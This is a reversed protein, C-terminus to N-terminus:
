VARDFVEFLQLQMNLIQLADKRPVNFFVRWAYTSECGNRPLM